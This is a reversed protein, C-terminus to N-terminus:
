GEVELMPLATQSAGRTPPAHPREELEGKPPPFSTQGQTAGPEMPRGEPNDGGTPSPRHEEQMTMHRGGQGGHPDYSRSPPPSRPAKVRPKQYAHPKKESTPKRRGSAPSHQGHRQLTIKRRQSRSRTRTHAPVRALTSQSSGNGRKQMSSIMVTPRSVSDQRALRLRGVVGPRRM